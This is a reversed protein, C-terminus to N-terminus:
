IRFWPLTQKKWSVCWSNMPGTGPQVAQAMHLVPLLASQTAPYRKVLASIEALRAESFQPQQATTM